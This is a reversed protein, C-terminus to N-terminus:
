KLDLQIKIINDVQKMDDISLKGYKKYLRKKSVTMIQDAMVKSEKGKISVKKESIYIKSINTSLPLVQIRELYKNSSDNSIIVAPRTKKIETGISPDFNVWWVEGRKM